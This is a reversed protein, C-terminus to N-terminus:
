GYRSSTVIYGTLGIRIRVRVGNDRPTRSRSVIWVTLGIHSQESLSISNTRRVIDIYSDWCNYVYVLKYRICREIIYDIANDVMAEYRRNRNTWPMFRDSLVDYLDRSSLIVRFAENEKLM